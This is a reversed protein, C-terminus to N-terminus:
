AAASRGPRKAPGHLRQMLEAEQRTVGCAEMLEEHSAGSRALRIAIQYSPSANAPVSASHPENDLRRTLLRLSGDIAALGEELDAIRQHVEAIRAAMHQAEIESARRWRTFAFAAVAFAAILFVARGILFITELASPQVDFPM